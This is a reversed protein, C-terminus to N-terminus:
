GDMLLLSLMKQSNLSFQREDSTSILFEWHRIVPVSFNVNM